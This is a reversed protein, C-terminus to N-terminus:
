SYQHDAVVVAISYIGKIFDGKSSHMFDGQYSQM